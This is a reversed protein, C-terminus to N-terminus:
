LSVTGRPELSDLDLADFAPRAPPVRRPTRQELRQEALQGARPRGLPRSVVHEVPQEVLCPGAEHQGLAAREAARYHGLDGPPARMPGPASRRAALRVDVVELAQM